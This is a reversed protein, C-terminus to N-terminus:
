RVAEHLYEQTLDIIEEFNYSQLINELSSKLPCYQQPVDDLLAQIQQVSLQKAAHNLDQIWTQSMCGLDAAKSIQEPTGTLSFNEPSDLYTYRVGLYDGMKELLIKEQFPKSIFDNCGAEIARDREEEFAGASIAIIVPQKIGPHNRIKQTAVLGNMIPMQIDMLILDPQCDRWVEFGKQGNEAEEISYGVSTLLQALVQRNEWKDEIILIKPQQEGLNLQLMSIPTTVSLSSSLLVTVPLDFSFCTGEQLQSQVDLSGGL